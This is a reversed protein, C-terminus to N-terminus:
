EGEPGDHGTRPQDTGKGGVGINKAVNRRHLGVSQIHSRVGCTMAQSCQIKKESNRTSIPGSFCTRHM